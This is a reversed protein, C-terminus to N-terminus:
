PVLTCSAKYLHIKGFFFPIKLLSAALLGGRLELLPMMSLLFITMEKSLFKGLSQTFFTIFSEM